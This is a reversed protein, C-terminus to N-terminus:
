ESVAAKLSSQEWKKLSLMAQHDTWVNNLASFMRFVGDTAVGIGIVLGTTPSVVACFVGSITEGVGLMFERIHAAQEPTEGWESEYKFGNSLTPRYEGHIRDTRTPPKSFLNLSSGYTRYWIFLQEIAIL